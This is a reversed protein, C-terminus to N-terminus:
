RVRVDQMNYWFLLINVVCTNVGDDLLMNFLKYYNVFDFAKSFDIFCAYVDSERRLYYDVITKTGTYM